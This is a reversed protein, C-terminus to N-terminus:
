LLNTLILSSHLVEYWTGPLLWWEVCPLWEQLEERYTFCGKGGGGLHSHRQFSPGGRCLWGQWHVPVLQMRQHHFSSSAHGEESVVTECVPLLM